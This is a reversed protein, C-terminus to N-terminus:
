KMLKRALYFFGGGIVILLYPFIIEIQFKSLAFGFSLGLVSALFVCFTVMSRESSFFDGMGM